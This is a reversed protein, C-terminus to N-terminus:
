LSQWIEPPHFGFPLAGYAAVADLYRRGQEDILESGEGRVFRKALWVNELLGALPPNVCRAFPHPAAPVGGGDGPPTPFPLTQTRMRVLGAPLLHRRANIM